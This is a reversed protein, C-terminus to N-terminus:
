LASMGTQLPRPSAIQSEMYVETQLDPQNITVSASNPRYQSLMTRRIAPKLYAKLRQGSYNRLTYLSHDCLVM